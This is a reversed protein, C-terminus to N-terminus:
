FVIKKLSFIDDKNFFFNETLDIKELNNMYDLIDPPFSSLNNCSLNIEKLNQLGVIFLYLESNLNHIRNHSLDLKTLNNLNLFLNDEIIKIQNGCLSLRELSILESFHGKELSEICNLSLDLNRLQKLNSFSDINIKRLERNRCILIQLKRLGDFFRKELKTIRSSDIRLDSLIEFNLGYFLKELCIDDINDIDIYLSTLQSCLNKFLDFNFEETQIKGNLCLKNLRVLNDLNFNSFYGSLNLNEIYPLIDLFKDLIDSNIATEQQKLVLDFERLALLNRLTVREVSDMELSLYKLSSLDEIIIEKM